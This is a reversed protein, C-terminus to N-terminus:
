VMYGFIDALAYDPFNIQNKIKQWRKGKFNNNSSMGHLTPM